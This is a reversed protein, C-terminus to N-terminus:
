HEGSTLEQPLQCSSVRSSCGPDRVAQGFYCVHSGGFAPRQLRHHNGAARVHQSYRGLDVLPQHAYDSGDRINSTSDCCRDTREQGHVTADGARHRHGALFGFLDSTSSLIHREFLRRLLSKPKALTILDRSKLFELEERHIPNNNNELWNRINEVNEEPAIPIAKVQTYRCLLEDLSLVYNKLEACIRKVLNKREPQDRRVSGNDVDPANRDSYKADLADLEEELMAIEDQLTILVRCHLRDYRRIVFFDDALSSYTAFDPYGIYKWSKELVEKRSLISM